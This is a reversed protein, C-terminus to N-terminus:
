EYLARVQELQQTFIKLNDFTGTLYQEYNWSPLMVGVHGAM